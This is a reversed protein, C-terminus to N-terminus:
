TTTSVRRMLCFGQVASKCPLRHIQRQRQKQKSVSDKYDIDPNTISHLMLNMASIRLMTQDTDYGTFTKTAFDAWQEDTM